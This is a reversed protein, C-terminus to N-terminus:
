AVTKPTKLLSPELLLSIRYHRLVDNIIMKQLSVISSLMDGSIEGEEGLPKRAAPAVM